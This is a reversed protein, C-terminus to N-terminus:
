SIGVVHCGQLLGCTLPPLVIGTSPENANAEDCHVGAWGRSALDGQLNLVIEVSAECPSVLDTCTVLAEQYSRIMALSVVNCDSTFAARSSTIKPESRM